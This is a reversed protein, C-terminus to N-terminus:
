GNPVDLEEPINGCGTCTYVEFPILNAKGNPSVLASMKKFKMVPMFIDNGCDCILDTAKSYDIQNGIVQPPGGANPNIIM